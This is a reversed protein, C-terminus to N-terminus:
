GILENLHESSNFAAKTRIVNVLPTVDLRPVNVGGGGIRRSSSTAVWVDTAHSDLPTLLTSDQNKRSEHRWGQFILVGLELVQVQCLHRYVAQRETQAPLLSNSEAATCSNRRRVRM